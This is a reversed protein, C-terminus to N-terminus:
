LFPFINCGGKQYFGFYFSQVSEIGYKYKAVCFLVGFHIPFKRRQFRSTNSKRRIYFNYQNNYYFNNKEKVSRRSMWSLLSSFDCSNQLCSAKSNWIILCGELNWWRTTLMLLFYRAMYLIKVIIELYFLHFLKKRGEYRRLAAFIM